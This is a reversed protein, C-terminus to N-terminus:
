ANRGVYRWGLDEVASVRAFLAILTAKWAFDIIGDGSSKPLRPL